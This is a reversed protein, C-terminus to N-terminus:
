CRSFHSATQQLVDQVPGSHHYHSHQSCITWSPSYRSLSQWHQNSFNTNNLINFVFIDLRITRQHLGVTGRYM